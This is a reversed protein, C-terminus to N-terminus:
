THRAAHVLDQGLHAEDVPISGQVPEGVAEHAISGQVNAPSKRPTWLSRQQSCAM